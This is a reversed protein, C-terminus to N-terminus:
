LVAGASSRSCRGQHFSEIGLICSGIPDASEALRMDKSPLWFLRTRAASLMLDQQVLRSPHIFQEWAGRSDATIGPWRLRWHASHDEALDQDLMPAVSGALNRVPARRGVN